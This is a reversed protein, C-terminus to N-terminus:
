EASGKKTRPPVKKKSTAAPEAKPIKLLSDLRDNVAKQFPVWRDEDELLEDLKELYEERTYGYRKLVDQRVLRATPTEAGYTFEALRLEVFTEVLHADVKVEGSCGTLPVLVSAALLAAGFIRGVFAFSPAVPRGERLRENKCATSM